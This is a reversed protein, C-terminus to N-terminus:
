SSSDTILIPSQSKNAPKTKPKSLSNKLKLKERKWQKKQSRSARTAVM